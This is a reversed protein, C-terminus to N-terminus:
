IDHMKKGKLQTMKKIIKHGCDWFPFLSQYPTILCFQSSTSAVTNLDLCSKM